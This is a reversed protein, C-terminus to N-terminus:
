AIRKFGRYHDRDGALTRWLGTLATHHVMGHQEAWEKMNYVVEIRGTSVAMIKYVKVEVSEYGDILKKIKDSRRGGMLPLVMKMLLYANRGSLNYMWRLKNGIKVNKYPGTVNGKGVRKQLSELVDLDTMHCSVVVNRLTGSTKVGFYGEGELLGAIWFLDNNNISFPEM